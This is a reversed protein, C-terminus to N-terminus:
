AKRCIITLSDIANGVREAIEKVKYIHHTGNRCHSVVIFDM